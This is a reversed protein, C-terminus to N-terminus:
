APRRLIWLEHAPYHELGIKLTADKKKTNKAWWRTIDRLTGGGTAGFCDSQSLKEVQFVTSMSKM